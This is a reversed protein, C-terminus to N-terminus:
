SVNKLANQIALLGIRACKSRRESIVIGFISELYKFDLALVDEKSWGLLLESLMSIGSQSIACGSGSFMIKQINNGDLKIDVTIDDGCLHNIEQFSVDANSLRGKNRPHKYHDMINQAYIDM